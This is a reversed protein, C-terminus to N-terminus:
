SRHKLRAENLSITREYEYIVRSTVTWAELMEYDISVVDNALKATEDSFHGKPFGGIMTALRRETSSKAVVDRLTMPSGIRSFAIVRTPNVENILQRM